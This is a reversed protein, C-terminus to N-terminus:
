VIIRIRKIGMQVREKMAQKEQKVQKILKATTAQVKYNMIQTQYTTWVKDLEVKSWEIIRTQETLLELREKAADALLKAMIEELVKEKKALAETKDKVETRADKLKDRQRDYEKELEKHERYLKEFNEM